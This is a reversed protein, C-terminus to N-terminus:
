SQLKTAAEDLESRIQDATMRARQDERWERLREVRGPLRRPDLVWAAAVILSIVAFLAALATIQAM